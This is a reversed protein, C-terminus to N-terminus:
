YVLGVRIATNVEQKHLSKFLDVRLIRTKGVGINGLGIALEQYPNRGQTYLTKFSVITHFDLIKLLPIKQWLGGKFNHELHGQLYNGNTSFKYYPLLGFVELYAGRMVSTENGNFHKLDTFPLASNKIFGGLQVFSKFQGLDGFVILQKHQLSWHTYPKYIKRINTASDNIHLLEPNNLPVSSKIAIGLHSFYTNSTNERGFQVVLEHEIQSISNFGGYSIGSPSITNIEKEQPRNPHFLYTNPSNYAASNEVLSLNNKLKFNFQKKESYYHSLAFFRSAYLKAYNNLFFLNNISNARPVIAPSQNFQRLENGAQLTLTHQPNFDKRLALTPRFVRDYFGYNLTAELFTHPNIKFDAILSAEFGQVRNFNIQPLIPSLYFKKNNRDPFPKEWAYGLAWNQFPKRPSLSDFPTSPLAASYSYKWQYQPALTKAIKQGYGKLIVACFFFCFISRRLHVLYIKLLFNLKSLFNLM